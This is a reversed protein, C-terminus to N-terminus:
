GAIVITSWTFIVGCKPSLNLMTESHISFMNKVPQYASISPDHDLSRRTRSRKLSNGTRKECKATHTNNFFLSAWWIRCYSWRKPTHIPLPFHSCIFIKMENWYCKWVFDISFNIIFLILVNWLNLQNLSIRSDILTCNPLCNFSM